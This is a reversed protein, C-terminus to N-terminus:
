GNSQTIWYWGDHDDDAQYIAIEAAEEILWRQERFLELPDGCGYYLNLDRWHIACSIKMGNFQASFCVAQLNLDFYEDEEFQLAQNM